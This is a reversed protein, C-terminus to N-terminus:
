SSETEVRIVRRAIAVRDGAAARVQIHYSGNQHPLWRYAWRSWVGADGPVFDIPTWAGNEVRLAIEDITRLGAYAYGRLLFSKGDPAAAPQLAVSRLPADYATAEYPAQAAILEIRRVWGPMWRDEVGPIILRLPAGQEPPLRIGNVHYALLATDALVGPLTTTKGNVSMIKLDADHNDILQRLRVGEWRANAMRPETPSDSSDCTTCDLSLAPLAQLAALTFRTRQGDRSVLTLRWHEPTISPYTTMLPRYFEDVPTM